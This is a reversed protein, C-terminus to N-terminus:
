AVGRSGQTLTSNPAPRAHYNTKSAAVHESTERANKYRILWEEEEEESLM